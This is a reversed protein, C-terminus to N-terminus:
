RKGKFVAPIKRYRPMGAKEKGRYELGGQPGAKCGAFRPGSQPKLLFRGAAPIYVIHSAKIILLLHNKIPIAASSSDNPNIKAPQPLGASGAGSGPM